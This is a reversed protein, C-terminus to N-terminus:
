TCNNGRKQLPEYVDQRDSGELPEYFSERQSGPSHVVANPVGFELTQEYDPNDRRSLPRNPSAYEAGSVNAGGSDAGDLVNYLPESVAGDHPAEQRSHAIETDASELVNYLPEQHEQKSEPVELVNYLPDQHVGVDPAEYTQGADPGDLVNYVPDQIYGLTDHGPDPGELVNYLAESLDEQKTDSEELVSYVPDPQVSPKEPKKVNSLKQKPIPEKTSPQNNQLSQYVPPATPTKKNLTQYVSSNDYNEELSSYVAGCNEHGKKDVLEMYTPQSEQESLTKAKEKPREIEIDDQPKGYVPNKVGLDLKAKTETNERSKKRRCLIIIVGVVIIGFAVAGGVGAGVAVGKDKGSARAEKDGPGDRTPLSLETTPLESPESYNPEGTSVSSSSSLSSSSLSLSSSLSSSSSSSSLTPIGTNTVQYYTEESNVPSFSELEAKSTSPLIPGSSRLAPRTQLSRTEMHTSVFASFKDTETIPSRTTAGLSHSPSPSATPRPIPSLPSTQSSQSLLSFSCIPTPSSRIVTTPFVSVLSTSNPAYYTVTGVVKFLYCFEKRPEKQKTMSICTLNLKIIRGSLNKHKDEWQIFFKQKRITLNFIGDTVSEWRAQFGSYDFYYGSLCCKYQKSSVSTEKEKKVQLDVAFYLVPNNNGGVLNLYTHNPCGGFNTPLQGGKVCKRLSPVFSRPSAQCRCSCPDGDSHAGLTPCWKYLQGGNTCDTGKKTNVFFLDSDYSGREVVYNVVISENIFSEILSILGSFALLVPFLFCKRKM